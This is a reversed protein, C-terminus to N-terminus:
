MQHSLTETSEKTEKSTTEKSKKFMKLIASNFDQRVLGVDPSAWRCNRNNPKKKEKYPDYKRRKQTKRIFLNLAIFKGRLETTEKTRLYKLNETAVNLKIILTRGEFM